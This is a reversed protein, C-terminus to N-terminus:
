VATFDGGVGSNLLNTRDTSTAPTNNTFTQTAAALQDQSSYRVASFTGTNNLVTYYRALTYRFLLANDAVPGEHILPPTYVFAPNDRVAVQDLMFDQQPTVASFAQSYGAPVASSTRYVKLLLRPAATTETASVLVTSSSDSNAASTFAAPGTWAAAQFVNDASRKLPPTSLGAVTEDLGQAPEGESFATPGALVVSCAVARTTSLDKDGIGLSPAASFTFTASSGSDSANWTHRYSSLTCANFRSRTGNVKLWQNTGNWGPPRTVIENSTLLWVTVLDGVNPTGGLPITLSTANTV